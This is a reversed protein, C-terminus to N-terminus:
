SRIQETSKSLIIVTMQIEKSSKTRRKTVQFYFQVWQRFVIPILFLERLFLTWRRRTVSFRRRDSVCIRAVTHCLLPRLQSDSPYM